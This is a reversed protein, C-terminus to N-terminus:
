TQLEDFHAPIDDNGSRRAIKRRFHPRTQTEGAQRSLNALAAEAAKDAASWLAATTDLGEMARTQADILDLINKDGVVGKLTRNIAPMEAAPLVINENEAPEQVFVVGGSEKTRKLGLTGDSGAGSLIIALSDRGYGDAPSRFFLDIPMRRGRVRETETARFSGNAMTLQKAPPIM